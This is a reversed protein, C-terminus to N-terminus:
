QLKELDDLRQQYFEINTKLKNKLSEKLLEISKTSDLTYCSAFGELKDVSVYQPMDLVSYGCSLNDENEEKSGSKYIKNSRPVPYNLEYEDLEYPINYSEEDESSIDIKEAKVKWELSPYMYSVSVYFM